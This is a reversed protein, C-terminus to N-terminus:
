LLHNRLNRNILIYFGGAIMVLVLAIFAALNPISGLIACLLIIILFPKSEHRTAKPRISFAVIAAAIGAFLFFISIAPVTAFTFLVQPVGWVNSLSMFLTFIIFMSLSIRVPFIRKDDRPTIKNLLYFAYAVFFSAQIRILTIIPNPDLAYETLEKNLFGTVIVSYIFFTILVVQLMVMKYASILSEFLHYLTLYLFFFIIMGTLTFLGTRMGVTPEGILIILLFTGIISRKSLLLSLFSLIRMM